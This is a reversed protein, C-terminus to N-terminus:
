GRSKEAMFIPMKPSVTKPPVTVVDQHVWAGVPSSFAEGSGKREAIKIEQVTILGQLFDKEDVVPLIQHRHLAMLKRAQRIPATPFITFLETSM